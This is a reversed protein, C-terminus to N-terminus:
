NGQRRSMFRSAFIVIAAISFTSLLLIWTVADFPLLLKEFNSYLESPAVFLQVLINLFIHPINLDTIFNLGARYFIIKPDMIAGSESFMPRDIKFQYNTTFNGKKGLMEFIEYFLGTYSVDPLKLIHEFIDICIGRTQSRLCGLIRKNHKSFHFM